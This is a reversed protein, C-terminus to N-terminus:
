RQQQPSSETNDGGVAFLDTPLSDAAHHYHYTRSRTGAVAGPSLSSAIGRGQLHYRADLPIETQLLHETSPPFSDGGIDFIHNAAVSSAIIPAPPPDLLPSSRAALIRTSLSSSQGLQHQQESSSAENSLFNNTDRNALRLSLETISDKLDSRQALLTANSATLRHVEERLDVLYQQGKERRLEATIRNQLLRRERRGAIM